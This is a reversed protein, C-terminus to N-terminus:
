EIVNPAAEASAGAAKPSIEVPKIPARPLIPCDSQDFLTLKLAVHAAKGSAVIFRM